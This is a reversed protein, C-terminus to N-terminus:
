QRKPEERVVNQTLPDLILIKRGQTRAYAVTSATGSRSVGAYVAFLLDSHDVMFKNRDLMCNKYYNRNVYVRSDAQKIISYYLARAETNWMKEQGVCPLICHLKLKPHKERLNLVTQAAWIDVGLAMGSLFDTYGQTILYKIQQSFLERLRVCRSDSEDYGWPFLKPRHGTFACVLRKIEKM